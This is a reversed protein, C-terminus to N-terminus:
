LGRVRRVIENVAMQAEDSTHGRAHMARLAYISTNKDYLIIDLFDVIASLEKTTM